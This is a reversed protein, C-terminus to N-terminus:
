KIKETVLEFVFTTGVNLESKIKVIGNLKDLESKVVSMGVGRGSTDTVEDKTTLNDKFIYNFVEKDSLNSIDIESKIKDKIKEINIGAGDDSIIIQLKDNDNNFSCAITGIEDKELEERKEPSEIGHDISNRFLHILSKIFPKFKEPILINEDGIIEFEYIEKELKLATQQTLRPYSKLQSKLSKQSLYKIDDLLCNSIDNEIHSNKLLSVYQYEINKIVQRDISVFNDNDLFKQGLLENINNIDKDMFIKFETEQLFELIEDNTITTSDVLFKSIQTEIEHLQSATNNMFLQLFSGKFTHVTRYLENINFLATKKDNVYQTIHKVFYEFDKKVDYFIDTDGIITVIMKLIDQEKKVKGELKKQSSINTIVLMINFDELIKYEFKLARRNLIVESPLLSIIAKQAIPNSINLMDSVDRKFSEVKNEDKFLISAIDQFAINKGLLKECEKSYEEDIKFEKNFTLFGQGANNLLTTVKKTKEDIRQELNTNLEHIEEHLKASVIINENLSQAMQGFEDNSNLDIKDVNDKKNQLFMFFNDLGAQVIQLPKNVFYMLLIYILILIIALSGLNIYLKVKNSKIKQQDIEKNFSAIEKKTDEKLQNIKEIIISEDYYLTVYGIRDMYGDSIINVPRKISSYKYVENPVLQKFEIKKTLKLGVIFIDKATNDFIKVAKIGNKKMDFYLSEELGELDYNLLFTSSNKAIMSATDKMQKKNIKLREDKREDLAKMASQLNYARIENLLKSDNQSFLYSSGIFITAIVVSLIILTKLIISQKL